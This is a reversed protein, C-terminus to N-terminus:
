ISSYHPPCPHRHRTRTHRSHQARAVRARNLDSDWLPVTLRFQLGLNRPRRRLDDWSVDFLDRSSVTESQDSGIGTREYSASFDGRIAGQARAEKLAIEGLRHNIQRQHLSARHRLGHSIALDGDIEFASLELNVEVQISDEFSLGLELKLADSQRTFNGQAQLLQNRSRALAVEMQLAEVEPILGAEYKKQALEASQTQQALADKAIEQRRQASYTNYFSRTVDYVINLHHNSIAHFIRLFL